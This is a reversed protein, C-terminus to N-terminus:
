KLLSENVEVKITQRLKDIHDMIAQQQKFLTRNNVLEEKIEEFPIPEGGTKEELKVVYFGEPGKFVSSIEGANLPMLATEMEPFPVESITGLDGGNAATKSISNQKALEAFDAGKLAETLLENAKIQDAVVIEKVKYQAPKKILDKKEEYFAKAEEETAVLGEVLKSAAERVILTRRFEEVAAQIDKNQAIGKQEADVIILQQRILEELILKKSEVDDTNFDPVVEKLAKLREAFEETSISWNGVRSLANPSLATQQSPNVASTAQVQSSSATASASPKNKKSFSEKISNIVDCGSLIITSSFVFFFFLFSKKYVSSV